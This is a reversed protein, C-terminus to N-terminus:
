FQVKEDKLWRLILNTDGIVYALRVLAEGYALEQMITAGELKFYTTYASIFAGVKGLGM